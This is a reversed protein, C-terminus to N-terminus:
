TRLISLSAHSLSFNYPRIITKMALSARSGTEASVGTSEKQMPSTHRTRVTTCIIQHNKLKRVDGKPERRDNKAHMDKM